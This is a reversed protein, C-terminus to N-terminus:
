QYDPPLWPIWWNMNRKNSLSHSVTEIISVHMCNYYMNNQYIIKNPLCSITKVRCKNEKNPMILKVYSRRESKLRNQSFHQIGLKDELLFTLRHLFFFFLFGVVAWESLRNQKTEESVAEGFNTWWIFEEERELIKCRNVLKRTTLSFFNFKWICAAM